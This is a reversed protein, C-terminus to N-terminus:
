ASNKLFSAGARVARPAIKGSVCVLTSISNTAQTGYRASPFARARPNFDGHARSLKRCVESLRGAGSCGLPPASFQWLRDCNQACRQADQNQEEAIPCRRLLRLAPGPLLFDLRDFQQKGCQQGPQRNTKLQPPQIVGQRMRRRVLQRHPVPKDLQQRLSSLMSTEMPFNAGSAHGPRCELRPYKM